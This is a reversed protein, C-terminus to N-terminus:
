SADSAEKEQDRSDRALSLVVTTGDGLASSVALKAGITDAREAMTSLGLHGPRGCAQDFGAGDDSVELRVCGAQDTVTVAATDARAHNIVNHLAESAIRYLHEEVGAAVDLRKEPGHVTIVTEERATLAAAQKGLAAVLGEEVLAAPRLEFILARM